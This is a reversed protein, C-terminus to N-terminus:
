WSLSGFASVCPLIMARQQRFEGAVIEEEKQAEQVEQCRGERGDEQRRAEEKKKWDNAHLRSRQSKSTTRSAGGFRQLIHLLEPQRRL